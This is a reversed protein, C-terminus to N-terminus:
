ESIEGVGGRMKCPPDFIRFKAEIKSMLRRKLLRTDFGLLMDSIQFM